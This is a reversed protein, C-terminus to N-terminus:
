TCYIDIIYRILFRVIENLIQRLQAWTSYGKPESLEPLAFTDMAIKNYINLNQPVAPSGYTSYLKLAEQVFGDKLLQAAYLAVYKHLVPTSHTKAKEICRTWQGQEALLDLASILDLFLYLKIVLFCDNEILELYSM